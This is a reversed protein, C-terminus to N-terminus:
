LQMETLVSFKPHRIKWNLQPISSILFHPSGLLPPPKSISRPTSVGKGVIIKNSAGAADMTNTDLNMADEPVVTRQFRLNGIEQMMEFPLVWVSRLDDLIADNWSLNRKVLTHLDMMMATSIPAIKGTLDFIETM